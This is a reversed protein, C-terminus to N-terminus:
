RLICWFANIQRGAGGHGARLSNIASGLSALGWYKHFGAYYHTHQHVPSRDALNLSNTRSNCSASRMGPTVSSVIIPGLERGGQLTFDLGEEDEPRADMLIILDECNGQVCVSVVAIVM